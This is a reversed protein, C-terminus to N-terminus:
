VEKRNIKKNDNFLLKFLGAILGGVLAFLAPETILNFILYAQYDQTLQYIAHILGTFIGLSIIIATLKENKQQYKYKLLFITILVTLIYVGWIIYITSPLFFSIIELILIFLCLILLVLVLNIKQPPNEEM